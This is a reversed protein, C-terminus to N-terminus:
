LSLLYKCQGTFFIHLKLAQNFRIDNATLLFFSLTFNTYFKGFAGPRCSYRFPMSLIWQIHSM